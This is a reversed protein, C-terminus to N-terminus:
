RTPTWLRIKGTKRNYDKSQLIYALRANLLAERKSLSNKKFTEVIVTWYDSPAVDALIREAKVPGIGPCGSYGDSSDGTLTQFAHFYAADAQTTEYVGDDERGCNLYRGPVGHFDKDISVIIREVSRPLKETALIGLIDDAELNKRHFARHKEILHQRLDPLVLPGRKSDRHAKYGPYLGRRFGHERPCSVAVTYDSAKLAEVLDSIFADVRQRAEAADSHLTWMDDGWNIAKETVVAQQYAIVDGDFLLTTKM